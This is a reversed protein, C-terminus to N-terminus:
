FSLLQIYPVLWTPTEVGCEHCLNMALDPNYNTGYFKSSLKDKYHQLTAHAFLHTVSDFSQPCDPCTPSDLSGEVHVKFPSKISSTMDIHQLPQTQNKPDSACLLDLDSCLAQLKFESKISPTLDIHQLPQTQNEPESACLLDVDSCLAQIKFASRISPTMFDFIKQHTIAIHQLYQAQSKPEYDCLFDVDCCM